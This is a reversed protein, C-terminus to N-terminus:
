ISASFNVKKSGEKASSQRGAKTGVEEAANQGKGLEERQSEAKKPAEKEM